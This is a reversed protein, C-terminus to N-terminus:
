NKLPEARIFESSAFADHKLAILDSQDAVKEGFEYYDMRYMVVAAAKFDMPGFPFNPKFYDEQFLTRLYLEAELSYKMKPEFGLLSCLRNRAQEKYQSLFAKSFSRTDSSPCFRDLWGDKKMDDNRLLKMQETMELWFQEVPMLYTESNRLLIQIFSLHPLYIHEAPIYGLFRKIYTLALNKQEPACIISSQLDTWNFSDSPEYNKFKRGRHTKGDLIDEFWIPPETQEFQM